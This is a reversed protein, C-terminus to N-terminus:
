LHLSCTLALTHGGIASHEFVAFSVNWDPAVHVCSGFSNSRVFYRVTRTALLLEHETAKEVGSMEAAFLRKILDPALPVVSRQCAPPPELRTGASFTGLLMM